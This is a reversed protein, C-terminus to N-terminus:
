FQVTPAKESGPASKFYPKREFGSMGAVISAPFRRISTNFTTASENYRGRAVNIRNETGELQAQLDRFAATAKLDPYNEMVVLLRSLAGGLQAQAQEFQQLQQESTPAQGGTQVQGVRARAETIAQFTEREFNAAGKVTAVLQPVLDARRQYQTEVDSWSRDVQEELGVLNNRVGVFYMGGILVALIVAGICGLLGLNRM